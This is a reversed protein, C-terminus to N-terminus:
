RYFTVGPICTTCDYLTSIAPYARLTTRPAAPPSCCYQNHRTCASRRPALAAHPRRYRRRRRAVRQGPVIVVVHRQPRPLQRRAVGCQWRQVRLDIDADNHDLSLQFKLYTENQMLFQLLFFSIHTSPLM